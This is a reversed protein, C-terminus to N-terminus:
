RYGSRYRKVLYDAALLFILWAVNILWYTSVFDIDLWTGGDGNTLTVTHWGPKMDSQSFIPTQFTPVSSFGNLTAETGDVDVTFPGHNQRMAGFVSVSTGQFSFSASVRPTPSATFSSASYSDHTHSCICNFVLFKFRFVFKSALNDTSSNGQGWGPSFIILPTVDEVTKM